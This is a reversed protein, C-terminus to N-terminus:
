LLPLLRSNYMTYTVYSPFQPCAITTCWPDELVIYMSINKNAGGIVSPPMKLRIHAPCYLVSCNTLGAWIFICLLVRFLYFFLAFPVYKSVFKVWPRVYTTVTQLSFNPLMYPMSALPFLPNPFSICGATGTMISTSGTACTTLSRAFSTAWPPPTPAIRPSEVGTM